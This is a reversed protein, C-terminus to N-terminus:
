PSGPPQAIAQRSRAYFAFQKRGLQVIAPAYDGRMSAQAHALQERVEETVPKDYVLQARQHRFGLSTM